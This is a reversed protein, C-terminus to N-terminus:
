DDDNNPIIYFSPACTAMKRPPSAPTFEETEEEFLTELDQPYYHKLKRIIKM